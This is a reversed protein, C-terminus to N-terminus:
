KSVPNGNDDTPLIQTQFRSFMGVWRNEDPFYILLGGDQYTGNDVNHHGENGQNMHIDHIGNGPSFDFYPDPVGQEPGWKSGFAYIMTGKTKISQMIHQDFIDNMDDEGSSDIAPLIRMKDLPFLDTRFYDLGKSTGSNNLLTFGVPFNKIGDLLPHVLNDSFYFYLNSPAQDSKVNVAVRNLINNSIVLIQYHPSGQPNKRKAEPSNLKGIATGVLVGYNPLSM